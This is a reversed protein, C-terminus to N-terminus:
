EVNGAEVLHLVLPVRQNQVIFRLSHALITKKKGLFSRKLMKIVAIFLQSICIYFFHKNITDLINKLYAIYYTGLYSVCCEPIGLLTRLNCFSSSMQSKPPSLPCLLFNVFHPSTVNFGGCHCFAKNAKTDDWFSLLVWLIEALALLYLKSIAQNPAVCNLFQTRNGM